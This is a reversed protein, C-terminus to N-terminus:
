PQRKRTADPAPPTLVGPRPTGGGAGLVAPAPGGPQEPAASAPEAASEVFPRRARRLAEDEKSPAVLDRSVGLRNLIADTEEDHASASRARTVPVADANPRSSTATTASASTPVIIVRDFISKDTSMDRARAVYGSTRRLVADLAWQEPVDSLDITMPENSVTDANVIHTDGLRAWEALIARVPADQASLTVRGEHFAIAVTQALTPRSAVIVLLVVCSVSRCFVHGNM